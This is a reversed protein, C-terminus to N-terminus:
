QTVLLASPLYWLLPQSGTWHSSDTVLRDVAVMQLGSPLAAQPM